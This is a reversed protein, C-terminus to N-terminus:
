FLELQAAAEPAESVPVLGGHETFPRFREWVERVKTQYYEVNEDPRDPDWDALPRACESVAPHASRGAVYYSVQDGPAWTRGASAAVEYAASVPRLGALVQQRYAEIPESVTETRAFLRPPVRHAAFDALWRDVVAKVATREGRLLLTVIEEILRRQFPELGRSRFGSGRLIVRGQEDLLAYTKMKYSLMAAYRGDLELTIGSPLAGALRELLAADDSPAHGPPPVFYVGDTDAEVPVAGTARLADVIASVVERGAATVRDAAEFDNWHGASFALYGYFSNILLKFSAQLASQHAREEPDAATQARRKATVRVDRLHRLLAPFVGLTDARPTVSGALMLSPYLSTVDVHLVPRAVGRQWVATLGGGVPGPPGPLPIARRHRLYERLLLADIKAATGRLMTSQYDFPAMQAQAFYPPSLVASVALTEAADDGAYAM